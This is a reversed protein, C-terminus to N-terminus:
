ATAQAEREFRRHVLKAEAESGAGLVEPRVLKIAASRALLRHQARWVEGMGGHGLLEVLQYSGMERAKRLQRGFRQLFHSPLTAVIECVSNPMFMVFTQAVSPTAVGRLHALWMGLPDMSAAVLSALLMKRPAVPAIMSYVLVLTTNWSLEARAVTSPTMVWTNFMAVGFANVIMYALGVDIKRQAPHPSYRVYLVMAASVIIGLTALLHSKWLPFPVGGPVALVFAWDMVIGFAWLGMGVSSLLELRRVQDSLLDDPLRGTTRASEPGGSVPTQM